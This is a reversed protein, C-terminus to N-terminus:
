VFAATLPNVKPIMASYPSTDEFKVVKGVTKSNVPSSFQNTKSSWFGWICRIPKSDNYTFTNRYCVWISLIHRKHSEVEYYMQHPPQHTFQPIGKM